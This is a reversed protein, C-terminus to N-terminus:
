KRPEWSGGLRELLAKRCRADWTYVTNISDVALHRRIEEFGYGLLKLRFIERCREGLLPLVATLRAELEAGAAATEPDPGPAAVNQGNNEDAQTEGRRAAKRALGTMKFRLIQFALPLLEAPDSVRPYREHLVLLTEQAMDEAQEKQLRSAAFRV